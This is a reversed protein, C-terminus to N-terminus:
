EYSQIYINDAIHYPEVREKLKDKYLVISGDPLKENDNTNVVAIKFGMTAFVPNCYYLNSKTYCVFIVFLLVLLLLLERIGKYDILLVSFLTVITALMNIYDVNKEEYNSIKVPLSSPSGKLRYCLRYCYFVSTIFLLAACFAIINAVTVISEWSAFQWDKGFYYPINITKIFLLLWMPLVSIAFLKIRSFM